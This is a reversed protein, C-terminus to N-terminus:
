GSMEMDDRKRKMRRERWENLSEVYEDGGEIKASTNKWGDRGIATGAWKEVDFTKSHKKKLAILYDEKLVPKGDEDGEGGRRPQTGLRVALPDLDEPAPQTGAIRRMERAAPGTAWEVFETVDRTDQADRRRREKERGGPPIQKLPRRMEEAWAEEAATHSTSFFMANTLGVRVDSINPDLDGFEPDLGGNLSSLTREHCASATEKAILHLYRACLETVTDLVLPKTSHFGSARLIHIISPRLLRLHLDNPTATTTNAVTSM